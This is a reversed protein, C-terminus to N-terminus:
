ASTKTLICYSAETTIIEISQRVSLGFKQKQKSMHGGDRGDWCVPTNECFCYYNGHLLQGLLSGAMHPM